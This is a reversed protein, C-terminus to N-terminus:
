CNSNLTRSRYDLENENSKDEFDNRLFDVDVTGHHLEVDVYM